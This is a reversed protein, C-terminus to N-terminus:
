FNNELFDKYTIAAEAARKSLVDVSLLKDGNFSSFFVQKYFESVQFMIHDRTPDYNNSSQRNVGEKEEM